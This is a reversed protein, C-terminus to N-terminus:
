PGVAGGFGGGFVPPCIVCFEFRASVRHSRAQERYRDSMDVDIDVSVGTM